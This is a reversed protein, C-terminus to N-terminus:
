NIKNNMKISSWVELHKIFTENGLAQFRVEFTPESSSLNQNEKNKATSSWLELQKKYTENRLAQFTHGLSPEFSSFHQNIKEDIQNFKLGWPTKHLDRQRSSSTQAWPKARMLHFKSNKKTTEKISSWVELQKIFTENELAQFSVGLSPEFSSFNLTRKEIM